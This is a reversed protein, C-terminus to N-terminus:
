NTRARHDQVYRNPTDFNEQDIGLAVFPITNVYIKLFLPTHNHKFDVTKEVEQPANSWTTADTPGSMTLGGCSHKRGGGLKSELGCFEEAGSGEYWRRLDNAVIPRMCVM